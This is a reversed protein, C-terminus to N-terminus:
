AAGANFLNGFAGASSTRNADKEAVIGATEGEALGPPTKATGDPNTGYIQGDDLGAMRYGTPTTLSEIAKATMTRKMTSQPVLDRPVFAIDLDGRAYSDLTFPLFKQQAPTLQSRLGWRLSHVADGGMTLLMQCVKIVAIDLNGTVEDLLHQVDMVLPMAGPETVQQMDRLEESLTLWPVCRDLAKVQRAVHSDAEGLGLNQILPFAQAGEPAPIIRRQQRLANPQIMDATPVPSAGGSENLVLQLGKPDKSAVMYAQDIFQRIYDLIGSQAANIEDIARILGTVASAGHQLGVNKFQPFVAPVFGWPNPMQAPQDAYAFPKGDRLTTITEKTVDKGWRYSTGDDDRPIEIRYSVVDDSRNKELRTVYRPHHLVPYVKGREDDAEVEVFAEGFLACFFAFTLIETTWNGWVMGQRVALVVEEPTDPRFPLRDVDGSDARITPYCHGPWWDVAPKVIPLVSRITRPLGSRARVAGWAQSDLAYADSLYYSWVFDYWDPIPTFATGDRDLTGSSLGLGNWRNVLGSTMGGLWQAVM